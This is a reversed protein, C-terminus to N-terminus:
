QPPVEVSQGVLNKGKLLRSRNTTRNLYSPSMRLGSAMTQEMSEREPDPTDGGTPKTIRRALGTGLGPKVEVTQNHLLRGLSALPKTTSNYM